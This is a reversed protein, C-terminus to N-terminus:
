DYPWGVMSKQGAKPCQFYTKYNKPNTGSGYTGKNRCREYHINHPIHITEPKGTITTEPGYMSFATVDYSVLYAATSRLPEDEGEMEAAAKKLGAIESSVLIEFAVWGMGAIQGLGPVGLEIGQEIATVRTGDESLWGELKRILAWMAGYTVILQPDAVEVAWEAVHQYVPPVYAEIPIEYPTVINEAAPITSNETQLPAGLLPIYTIGDQVVAGSPLAATLGSAGNWAYKDAPKSTTPVGFTTSRELTAPKTAAEQLSATGIINGELDSLQLVPEKGEEQVAVLGEYGVINRTWASTTEDYTWQPAEQGGAAYHSIVTASQLEQNSTTTTLTRGEPDLTYANSVKNQRQVAAQGTAYYETEIATPEKGGADAAPLKTINGMAEYQTGEDTLHGAEDYTHQELSGGESACGGTETPKRTRASTRQGEENYGYVSTTCGEGAPTEQVEGLEGVTNYAYSTKALSSEQLATEGHISPVLSDNFWECQSGSCPGTTKLYRLSTAEGTSNYAYSATMGNPYTQTTRRGEADYSAKLAGVGSANIETLQGTAEDYAYTESDELGALKTADYNAEHLRGYKDYAYTSHNGAADTYETMQGLTNYSRSITQTGAEGETRQESLAGDTPSYKYTTPPLPMDKSAGSISVSTEAPRDAEEYTTTRTRTLAGFAEITAEPQDYMNYRVTTVPLSPMGEATDAPQEAPESRCTLGAWEPHNECAEVGAETGSSYYIVRSRRAGPNAYLAGPTIKAIKHIEDETFWLDDEPGLTMGVPQSKSPVPYESISGLPTIRGIKHPDEETFWLAGEAGLTVSNPATTEPLAYQTIAGEPTVKGIENANGETFWLDGEKGLAISNPYSNNALPYETIAGEPTIRGIKSAFDGESTGVTFWLDGEAGLAIATVNTMAPLAYESVAGAPTIKGIKSYDTFWLDGEAGVAIASPVSGSRLAYESIAGAPTIKGIKDSNEETFWLDGEKGLTIGHPSSNSPLAYESVAGAPTMRGVKNTNGDTFWLDGEAGEAIHDPKGEGPLAYERVDGAKREPKSTEVVDGTAENYTTTTTLDAGEPDVTTSTAARLKWGLGNQGSYGTLTTRVDKEQGNALLAGDTTRTVLGYHEAEGKSNAPAGEDYFYRAHNRAQVTEGDALKVQHEPGLTESLELGGEGYKSESSLKEAEQQPNGAQLARKRNDASLSRTVDGDENYESTAIGGSPLLTNVTNAQGDTYYVTAGQGEFSEAPWNQPHEQPFIATGELPQDSQGWKATESTNLDAPAGQGSPPVDYEITAGPAPQVAEGNTITGSSTVQVESSDSTTAGGANLATVSVRVDYGSDQSTLVYSPNDAGAIPKCTNACRDWSYTYTLAGNQWEGHNASLRSGVVASGSLKPAESIAPLAGEWLATSASPRYVKLLRGSASEGAVTGYSMLWPQEGAPSVAVLHGESDYGYTTKLAPKVRPDWEARLRGHADYAYEAVAHEEPAKTSPNWAAVSVRTLDGDYEGWQSENEGTATTTTAYTFFLARCGAQMKAVEAPCSLSAAHPALEETPEVIEKGNVEVTQYTDTLEATSAAGKSVTPLWKKSGAPKTFDTISGTTTDELVFVGNSMALTMTANSPPPQYVNGHKTFVILGHSGAVLVNGNELEELSALSGLSITWQPGLPGEVGETTNRSDYHRSVTLSASGGALGVDTAQMAFDGSQPNVSGPGIAVPSAADIVLTYDATSVNKAADEAAVKMTHVGAGLEAGDVTWSATATCPGPACSASSSELQHGDIELGIKAVGSSPVGAEGDTAQVTLKGTAPGETIEIKSGSRKGGMVTIEGPPVEDVRLIEEPSYAAIGSPDVAKVRVRNEGDKVSGRINEYTIERSEAPRCAIGECAGEAEYENAEIPEWSGGKLVELFMAAVGFAPDDASYELAGTHSSLWPKGPGLANTNGKSTAAGEAFGAGINSQDLYQVTTNNIEVWQTWATTKDTSISLHFYEDGANPNCLPQSGGDYGGGYQACFAAARGSFEEVTMLAGQQTNAPNTGNYTWVPDAAPARLNSTIGVEITSQGSFKHEFRQVDVRTISGEGSEAGPAFVSAASWTDPQVEQPIVAAVGENGGGGWYTGKYQWGDWYLSSGGYEQAMVPDVKVPFAVSGSLDVHATLTSGSVSYSVPLSVGDAQTAVAPRVLLLRAGECVVEAAGPMSKSLVLSAGAPLSFSLGHEEGSEQSLLQWSAEVGNDVPEVLFDTDKAVGPYFVSDGVLQSGEPAEQEGPAVRVDFPFSVGGGPTSAISVPVLPNAPEYSSGHAALKLSVPALQGSGVSSRLPFNSQVLEHRGGVEAVAGYEGLYGTIKGAGEAELGAWAPAGVGFFRKALSLAAAGDDGEFQTRSRLREAVAQPSALEAERVAESVVSGNLSQVLPM